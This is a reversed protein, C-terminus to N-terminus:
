YRAVARGSIDGASDGGLSGLGRDVLGFLRGLGRRRACDARGCDVCPAAPGRRGTVPDRAGGRHLDPVIDLRTSLCAAAYVRATRRAQRVFILLGTMVIAAIMLQAQHNPNAFLGTPVAAGPPGFPYLDPALGSLLARIAAILASLLAGVVVTKALVVLGKHDVKVAALVIGLCCSRRQLAGHDSGPRAALPHRAPGQDVLAYVAGALERGPLGHWWGPPLSILQALVLLLTLVLLVVPWLAAQPLPHGTFHRAIVLCLLM